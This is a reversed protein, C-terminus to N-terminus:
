DKYHGPSGIVMAKVCKLLADGNEKSGFNVDILSEIGDFFKNKHKNHNSEFAKTNPIHKEVKGRLKCNNKSVLYLHAIGEEM